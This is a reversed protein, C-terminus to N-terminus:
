HKHKPRSRKKAPHHKMASKCKAAAHARTHRPTTHKKKSRHKATTCHSRATTNSKISSNKAPVQVGGAQSGAYGTPTGFCNSTQRTVYNDSSTNDGSPNGAFTYLPCGHTDVVASTFDLLSRDSPQGPLGCLIGANCIEGKHYVFGPNVDSYTFTPQSANANTSQATAYTWQGSTSNPDVVGNVTRFYGISLEGAQPGGVAAPLMHAANPQDLRMPQTWSKGQDVSHLMYVNATTDFPKTGVFGTGVVYLNGAGDISLDNFVDGFQVTNTGLQSGDFVTYDTFSACHDHSVAMYLQSFTGTTQGAGLASLSQPQTTTAFLIYLNGQADTVPRAVLTGGTIDTPVNAEISPDTVIPGCPGDAFLHGGGNDDRFVLPQASVFEHYTLYMRGERDPTLWQRDNSPGAQGLNVSSCAGPDPFPGIGNFTVGHDTSKCIETAVAELDAIFVNGQSMTVDSDGGGLLSGIFKGPSFSTGDDRSTWFGVGPTGNVGSPIAQPGDVYISNGDVAISPEGGAAGSLKVPPTFTAAGAGAAGALSGVIISAGVAVTFRIRM